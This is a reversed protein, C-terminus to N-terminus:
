QRNKSSLTTTHMCRNKSSLTNHPTYPNWCAQLSGILVCLWPTKTPCHCPTWKWLMESYKPPDHCRNGFKWGMYGEVFHLTLAYSDCWWPCPLSCTKISLVEILRKPRFRHGIHNVYSVSTWYPRQIRNRRLFHLAPPPKVNWVHM